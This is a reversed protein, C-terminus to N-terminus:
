PRADGPGGESLTQTLLSPAQGPSVATRPCRVAEASMRKVELHPSWPESLDRLRRLGCLQCAVSHLGSEVTEM